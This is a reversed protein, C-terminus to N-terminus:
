RQCQQGHRSYAPPPRAARHRQTAPAAPAGLRRPRRAPPQAPARPARRKPRRLPRAMKKGPRQTAGPALDRQPPPPPADAPLGPNDPQQGALYQSLLEYNYRATTNAPNLKLAQRLLAAAQAVQGQQTLLGALQQRAASSIGAPVTPALLRSYTARAASGQGARQQAQGLNLLLAAGPGRRGALAVAQQYYYVAEPAHGGALAAQARAQAANHERVQTLWRWGPLGTSLLM